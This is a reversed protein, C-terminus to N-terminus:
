ELVNILYLKPIATFYTADADMTVTVVTMMIATTTITMTAITPAHHGLHDRGHYVCGLASPLKETAKALFFNKITITLVVAISTQVFCADGNQRVRM